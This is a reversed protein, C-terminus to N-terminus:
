ANAGNRLLVNSPLEATYIGSADVPVAISLL